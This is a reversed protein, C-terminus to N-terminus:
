RNWGAATSRGTPTLGGLTMRTGASRITAACGRAASFNDPDNVDFLPNLLISQTGDTFNEFTYGIRGGCIRPSGRYQPVTSITSFHATSGLPGHARAPHAFYRRRGRHEAKRDAAGPHQDRRGSIERGPHPLDAHIGWLQQATPTSSITM